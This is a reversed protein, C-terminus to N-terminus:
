VGKNKVRKIIDKIKNDLIKKFNNDRIQYTIDDNKINEINNITIYSLLETPSNFEIKKNDYNMIIKHILTEPPPFIRFIKNYVIRWDYDTIM